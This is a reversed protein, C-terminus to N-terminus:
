GGGGGGGRRTAPRPASGSSGTRGQPTARSSGSGSSASPTRSSPQAQGRSGAASPQSSRTAPRSSPRTSTYGRDPDVSGRRDRVRPQIVVVGRGWYPDWYPDYGRFGYRYFGTGYWTSWHLDWPSYGRYPGGMPPWSARAREQGAVPTPAAAEAQWSGGEIEFRDPFSVAVMVDLVEPPVGQDALGKLTRTDLDFPDGLEAVLARAVHADVEHVLEAVAAPSLPASAQARATTIALRRDAGYPEVGQEAMVDASAPVFRRVGLAPERDGARVSHIELWETGDFALAMVGRSTRFVGAGCDLDSSIFVRAGDASWSATRDGECGGEASPVPSGDAVVREVALLEGNALTRIEVGRADDLPEFCVLLQDEASAQSDEAEWCGFWAIWNSDQLAQGELAPLESPAAWLLPLVLLTAATRQIMNM